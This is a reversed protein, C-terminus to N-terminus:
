IPREDSDVFRFDLIKGREIICTRAFVVGGLGRSPEAASLAQNARDILEAVLATTIV